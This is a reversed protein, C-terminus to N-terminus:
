VPQKVFLAGCRRHPAEDDLPVFPFHEWFGRGRERWHCLIHYMVGQTLITTAHDLDKYLPNEKPASSSRIMCYEFSRLSATRFFIIGGCL